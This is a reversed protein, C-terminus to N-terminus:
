RSRDVVPATMQAVIQRRLAQLLRGPVFGYVFTDAARPVPRLDPGPWIFRNLETSLVWSRADDLGLRQKTALPLEIGDQPRRPATHTVPAVLVVRETEAAPHVLVIVCPRDKTGEERGFTEQDRWLYSYNIVLGAIPEPLPM